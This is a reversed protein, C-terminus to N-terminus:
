ENVVIAKTLDLKSNENWSSAQIFYLYIVFFTLFIKFEKNKLLSM